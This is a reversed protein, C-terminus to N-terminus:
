LMQNALIPGQISFCNLRRNTHAYPIRFKNTRPLRAPVLHHLKHFSLSEAKFLLKVTLSTFRVSCFRFNAYCVDNCGMIKLCRKYFNDVTDRITSPPIGFVPASYDIISCIYATLITHLQSHSVIPKLVRLLFIRRSVRKLILNFHETWSLNCTFTIGLFVLSNVISINTDKFYDVVNVPIASRKNFFMLKSKILNLSLQHINSWSQVNKFEAKISDLSSAIDCHYIPCLFTSDDAYKICATTEFLPRLTTVYLLFYFHGLLSGQPVGSTVPLLNSKHSNFRTRQFRNCLYSESFKVFDFPLDNQLLIDILKGHCVTDFAKSFDFSLLAISAVEPDDLKSTIFDHMCIQACTASSHPIFGFQNCDVKDLIHPKVCNLIFIECLKSPISLLSVPRLSNNLKLLTIQNLFLLSIVLKLFNQFPESCNSLICTNIINTLPEALLHAAEKYIINPIDDAGTAKHESLSKLFRYADYVDIM